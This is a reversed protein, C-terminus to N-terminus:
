KKDKEVYSDLVQLLVNRQSPTLRPWFTQLTQIEEEIIHRLYHATPEKILLPVPQELECELFFWSIPVGLCQALLYLQSASLKNEGQEYRSIQQQTSGIANALAIASVDAQMRLKKLRRGIQRDLDTVAPKAMAPWGFVPSDFPNVRNVAM